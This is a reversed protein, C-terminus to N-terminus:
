IRLVTFRVLPPEPGALGRAEARLPAAREVVAPLEIVRLAVATIVPMASPAPKAVDLSVTGTTCHKECMGGDSEMDAKMQAMAVPDAVPGACAYAAAAAQALLFAACAALASLMRFTRRM